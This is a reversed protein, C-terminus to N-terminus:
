KERLRLGLEVRGLATHLRRTDGQDAFMGWSRVAGTFLHHTTVDRLDDLERIPGSRAQYAALFAKFLEDTLRHSLIAMDVLRWDRRALELDYMALTGGTTVLLNHSGWDGHIVTTPLQLEALHHDLRTLEVTIAEAQNALSTWMQSGDDDIELDPSPGTRLRDLTELYWALDRDRSGDRGFGLHHSGRPHFDILVEHMEAMLLASAEILTSRTSALMHRGVVRRGPLFTSLSHAADDVVAVTDGRSSTQLTPLTLGASALEFVIDHEHHLTAINWRDPYRKLVMPGADTPVKVVLNRTGAGLQISPGARQLGFVSVAKDVMAEDLPSRSLRAGVRVSTLGLTPPGIPEPAHFSPARTSLAQQVQTRLEVLAASPDTGNNAVRTLRWGRRAAVSAATAVAAHAHRVYAAADGAPRNALWPWMGRDALREVAISVDTDIYVLLDSRPVTSLYRGIDNPNGQEVPSTFLQIVRHAFGEDVLLAEKPGLRKTLLRFDGALQLQWRLVQRQRRASGTPRIRQRRILWWWHQPHGVIEAITAIRRELSFVAWGAARRAPRPMSRILGGFTGREAAPRGAEQPTLPTFGMDVLAVRVADSLVTKGAAPVGMIEIILPREGSGRGVLSKTTM